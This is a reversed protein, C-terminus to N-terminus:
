GGKAPSFALMVIKAIMEHASTLGENWSHVIEFADKGLQADLAYYKSAVESDRQIRGGEFLNGNAKIDEDFAKFAAAVEDYRSLPRNDAKPQGELCAGFCIPGVSAKECSDCADGGMFVPEAKEPQNCGELDALINKIVDGSSVLGEDYAEMWRFYSRRLKRLPSLNKDIPIISNDSM